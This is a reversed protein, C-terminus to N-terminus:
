YKSPVALVPVSSTHLLRDAVARGARSATSYSRTSIAVLDAALAIAVTAIANAILEAPEADALWEAKVTQVSVNLGRGDLARRQEDLYREAEHTKAESVARATAQSLLEEHSVVPVSVGVLVIESELLTALQTVHALIAEAGRSGDLPVLIRRYM